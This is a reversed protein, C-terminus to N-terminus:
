PAEGVDCIIFGRRGIGGELSCQETPTDAERSGTALQCWSKAPQDHVLLCPRIPGQSGEKENHRGIKCLGQSDRSLSHPSRLGTEM